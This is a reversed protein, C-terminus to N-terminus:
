EKYGKFRPSGFCGKHYGKQTPMGGSFNAKSKRYVENMNHKILAEQSFMSFFWWWLRKFFGAETKRNYKKYNM